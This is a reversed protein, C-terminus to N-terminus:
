STEPLVGVKEKFYRRGKETIFLYEEKRVVCGIEILAGIVKELAVADNIESDKQSKLLDYNSIGAGGRQNIVYLVNEGKNIHKVASFVDGETMSLVFAKVLSLLAGLRIEFVIVDLNRNKIKKLFDLTLSLEDKLVSLIRLDKEYLADSIIEFLNYELEVNVKLDPERSWLNLKSLIMRVWHIDM